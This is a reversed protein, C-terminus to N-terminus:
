GVNRLGFKNTASIAAANFDHVVRDKDKIDHRDLLMMTIRSIDNKGKSKSYPNYEVTKNGFSVTIKFRDGNVITDIRADFKVPTAHIAVFGSSKNAMSILTVKYLVNELIKESLKTDVVVIRKHCQSEEKCGAWSGNEKKTVFAIKKGDSEHFKLYVKLSNM